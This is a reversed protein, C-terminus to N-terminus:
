QNDFFFIKGTISGGPDGPVTAQVPVTGAAVAARIGPLERQPVSYSVYIPRIQNITVLSITDQAKVANGTKLAITGVRGDMPSRITYYTLQVKFNDVTAQDGLVTAELSASNTQATDFQQRSVFEKETLPKFRAADRKDNELQSRDKALSAEALKLQAEASRTDLIFLVDGTKVAQGDSIKVEAIQGDVRSKVAVTAIPQVTGIAEIRLPMSKRAVPAIVVPVGPAASAGRAPAEAAKLVFTQYAIGGAVAVAVFAVAITVRRM